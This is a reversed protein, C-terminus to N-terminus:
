FKIRPPTVFFGFADVDVTGFNLETLDATSPEIRSYLLMTEDTTQVDGVAFSGKVERTIQMAAYAIGAAVLLTVVILIVVSKLNLRITIGRGGM